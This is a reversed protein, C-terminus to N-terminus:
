QFTRKHCATNPMSYTDVPIVVQPPRLLPSQSPKIRISQWCKHLDRHRLLVMSLGQHRLKWIGINKLYTMIVAKSKVKTVQDSGWMQDGLHKNLQKKKVGVQWIKGFAVKTPTPKMADSHHDLQAPLFLGPPIPDWRNRAQWLLGKSCLVLTGIISFFSVPKIALKLVDLPISGLLM